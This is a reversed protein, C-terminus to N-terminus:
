LKTTTTTGGYEEAVTRDLKNDTQLTNKSFHKHIDELTRGRSGPLCKAYVIILVHLAAFLWYTGSTGLASSVLPFCYVMVFNFIGTFFMSVGSFETRIAIPLLESNLVNMLPALALSFVCVVVLVAVLTVWSYNILQEQYFFCFGSAICGLGGVVGNIILLTSRELRDIFLTALFCSIVRVVGVLISGLYPNTFGASTKFIVPAFATISWGGTFVFLANLWIVLLFPLLNHRHRLLSLVHWLSADHKHQEGISLRIDAIERDANFDKGHYFRLTRRAEEEPHGKTILWRASRPLMLTILFQVVLPAVGVVLCCHRWGLLWGTLYTCTIGVTGIALNATILKGRIAIDTIEGMYAIATGYIAGTNVGVLTRGVLLVWFNGGFSIMLWGAVGLPAVLQILRVAGLQPNAYSSVACGVMFGIYLVSALWSVQASTLTLDADPSTLQETFVGVFALSTGFGINAVSMALSALVQM